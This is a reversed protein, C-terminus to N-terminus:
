SHLLEPLVLKSLTLPGLVCPPLVSLQYAMKERRMIGQCTHILLGVKQSCHLGLFNKDGGVQRATSQLSGYWDRNGAIEMGPDLICSAEM